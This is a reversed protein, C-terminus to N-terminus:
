DGEPKQAREKHSKDVQLLANKKALQELLLQRKLERLEERASDATGRSNEPVHQPPQEPLYEEM